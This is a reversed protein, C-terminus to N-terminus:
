RACRFGVSAEASAPDFWHRNRNRLQPATSYWGGGRIVRFFGAPPGQPDISDGMAYYDRQYRDNTWEWVNGTMDFLGWPNPPGSGCARPQLESPQACNAASPDADGWAYQANGRGSLAAYEWQAETPLQKGKFRCYQRAQEWTVCLVPLAPSQFKEPVRVLKFGANTWLYCKGDAYHAPTCGGQRVCSDYQARTVEYKDISFSSLQVSVPPQEDGDGAASGMTFQGAPLTAMQAHAVFAPFSLAIFVAIGQRFPTGSSFGCRHAKM